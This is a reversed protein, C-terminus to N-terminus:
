IVFAPEATAPAAPAEYLTTPQPASESLFTLYPLIYKSYYPSVIFRHVTQAAIVLGAYAGVANVNDLYFASAAAGISLLHILTYALKKSDIHLKHIVYQLIVSLGAGGGVLASIAPWHAIVYSVITHAFDLM